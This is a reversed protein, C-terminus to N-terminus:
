KCGINTPVARQATRSAPRLTSRRFLTGRASGHRGTPRPRLLAADRGLLSKEFTYERFFGNFCPAIRKPLIFPRTHKQGRCFRLQSQTKPATQKAV